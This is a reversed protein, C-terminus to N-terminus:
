PCNSQDTLMWDNPGTLATRTRFTTFNRYLPINLRIPHYTRNQVFESLCELVVSDFDAHFKNAFLQPRAVLYPLDRWSYVCIQRVIKGKCKSGNWLKARSLGYVSGKWNRGVVGPVDPLRSLTQYFYEDPCLTVNLWTFWSQAKKSTAIYTAFERSLAAHLEGKFIPGEFPKPITYLKTSNVMRTKGIYYRFKQREPNTRNLVSMVDSLGRYERLIRVIELNTKLPFEQGSLNLYYKWKSPRKLLDSLCYLEAKVVQISCWTVRALRSAIFVNDFCKAIAQMSRHINPSAKRDVHICYVNHPRYITRLLQEVQHVSKYMYIGYALPFDREEQSVSYQFYGGRESTFKTCNNALGKYDKDKIIRSKLYKNRLRVASKNIEASDVFLEACSFSKPGKMSDYHRFRQENNLDDFRGSGKSGADPHEKCHTLNEHPIQITRIVDTTEEAKGLVGRQINFSASPRHFPWYQFFFILFVLVYFATAYFLRREPCQFLLKTATAKAM